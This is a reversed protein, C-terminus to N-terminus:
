MFTSRNQERCARSCNPICLCLQLITEAKTKRSLKCDVVEYSWDGLASPRAVRLMVDARGRWGDAAITGQVIVEAANELATRMAETATEEPEDSLDVVALGKSRLTEIYAKEHELGRQQFCLRSSSKGVRSCRTRKQRSPSGADHSSSLFLHNALDTASLAITNNRIRM